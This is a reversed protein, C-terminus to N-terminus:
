AQPAKLSSKSAPDFLAAYFLNKIRYEAVGNAPDAAERILEILRENEALLATCAADLTLWDKCLRTTSMACFGDPSVLAREVDPREYWMGKRIEDHTM